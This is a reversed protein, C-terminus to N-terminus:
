AVQGLKFAPMAKLGEGGSKSKGSLLLLRIVLYKKEIIEHNM